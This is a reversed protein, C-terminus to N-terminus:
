SLRDWTMIHNVDYNCILNGTQSEPRSGRAHLPLIALLFPQVDPVDSPVPYSKASRCRARLVHLDERGGAACMFFVPTCGM